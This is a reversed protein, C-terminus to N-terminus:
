LLLHMVILLELVQLQLCYSLLLSFDIVMTRKPNFLFCVIRTITLLPRCHVHIIQMTIYSSIKELLTRIPYMVGLLSVTEQWFTQSPLMAFDIFDSPLLASNGEFTSWHSSNCPPKIFKWSQIKIVNLKESFM